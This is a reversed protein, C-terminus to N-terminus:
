LSLCQVRDPLNRPIPLATVYRQPCFKQANADSSSSAEAGEAQVRGHFKAFRNIVSFKEMDQCEVRLDLISARKDLRLLEDELKKARDTFDEMAKSIYQDGIRESIKLKESLLKGSDLNLPVDSKSSSISRCADGLTSRSVFYIVSEYYSSADSSLVKAQPPHFLQQMLQTTLILRRKSKFVPSGEEVIETEDEVKEMLRNAAQAWEVEAMRINQLKAFGEMVERHWPLYESTASKRKNPRVHVLSQDTTDPPLFQPSSIHESAMSMSLSSQQVNGFQRADPVAYAQTSPGVHLGDSPKGVIFPQEMTRVAASKRADYISLMQGNKFSGYQDFWSPAMQPSIQSHEDRVAVVSNGNASSQSDNPNLPHADNPSTITGRNDGTKPSFGLMRSDGPPLSSNNTPLQQGGVPAVQLADLASDPGKFRKVSRNDPDIETSKMAQMQHLLSYNQHLLNNPKLSRGFAEIDRQTTSNLLATDSLRNVVSEKGQLHSASMKQGVDTESSVQQEKASQEERVFGQPKASYAAFGSPGNDGRQAAQDDQKEVGSSSRELNNTSQLQNKFLNPPAQSVSSNHQNSVGTWANPFMKPFAGQHCKGPTAYPQSVPMAELVPFQQASGGHNQNNSSPQSTEAASTLESHSTGKSKDPVSAVAHNTQTRESSDSIQKIFQSSTVQDGTGIMQQTHLHSKHYPFAASLNGQINFQSGKNGINHGSDGQSTEHSPYLSQISANSSLWAHGRKGMDSTVRTSSLSNVAQSSSQSSLTHDPIPLRQSPPALQLGFGQSTSSQNQLLHDASGGSIETESMQSQNRDSSSINMAHSHEKSQDVKHLLELMNQSPSATKNPAYNGVSKDSPTSAVPAYGPHVSKSPVEDLCKTDGQSGPLCGKDNEVSSKAGHAFYKSQGFYTQDHGTLGRSVQQPMTQSHAINKMGYSPETDIDVDGMPHYQFKRTGSPKRGINNSSKQKGGPLTRSDSADLWVNERFGPTTHHSTNSHFSDSSKEKTNYNEMERGIVGNDAGDNRSSEINQSSKDLHHQYKGPVEGERPTVSSDVKKWLNLTRSNPFQQSSKQNARKTGSDSISADNNLNSDERNVHQRQIASNANEIASSVSDTMFIGTSYSMKEHMVNKHDSSLSRQLSSENSQDKLTAGGGPSISEIFNWGNPRNCQQGSTNYSSTSEQQTWSTSIGKAHLEADSAHAVDGYFHSGETVPKQVPSQDLWKTGEGSLQQVSRQSSGKQLKEIQEHSTKLGSQSAASVSSYNVSKNADASLPFRRSNVTSVAQLNNDSWASPQKNGDNVYLSQQSAAAPESNRISLGSWGEQVGIDGSSTEAVASQMLASWSGSQLSPLAGLLETNDLMNSCGTGVNTSRGFADWINDDSGFLIKEEEPDLTAANQSPAAQMVMKEQSTESPGVLRQSEQFEHMPASRQQTNIQQLNELNFGSNLGPGAASGFINKGLHSQRSGLTGDQMSGQDPFVSYQNGPFSNSSASIQQMTPKDMQISSYQSPNIRSSSVPVGYLSQDVQQPVLSMMRVQGQDPSFMLGSSSGQMVPSADRQLWNTNAAMLEPQWAYNSADEQQQFQPNHLQQQRHLEQLKKFMVQQHLLQMDVVGPQQRPLSQLMSSHQGSMQQQGGFFDYNVPSEASELRMSNKKNLEPGNGLQSDFVQLGRSTLNHRNHETDVGLFNSENQRTQLAQHGHMYGNLAPQQNQSQSRVLDPKSASPSFNLGHQVSSSQGGHGKESDASPQVSYSKLNSSLHPAGIQRQSGVWLNNNLGPWTGDVVQSHHQGQSLNEQGFFNHIRDGVENGPM